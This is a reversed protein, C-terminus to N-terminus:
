DELPDITVAVTVGHRTNRAEFMAKDIVDRVIGEEVSPNTPHDITIRITRAM